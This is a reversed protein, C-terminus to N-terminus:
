GDGAPAQRHIGHFVDRLVRGAYQLALLGFGSPIVLQGLWAPVDGLLTDGYHASALVFRTSQLTLVGCITATFGHLCAELWPRTKRSFLRELVNIRISEKDVIKAAHGLATRPTNWLIQGGNRRIRRGPPLIGERTQTSNHM